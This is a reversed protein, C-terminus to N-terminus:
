PSSTLRRVSLLFYAYTLYRLCYSSFRADSYRRLVERSTGDTLNVQIVYLIHPRPDSATTHKDIAVGSISAM